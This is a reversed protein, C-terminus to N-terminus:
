LYFQRSFNIVMILMISFLFCVFVCVCVCVCPLSLCCFGGRGREAPSQGIDQAFQHSSYVKIFDLMNIGKPM